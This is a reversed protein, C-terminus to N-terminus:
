LHEPPVSVCRLWVQSAEQWVERPEEGALSPQEPHLPPHHPGEVLICVQFAFDQHFAVILLSSVIYLTVM